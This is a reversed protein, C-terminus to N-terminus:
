TEFVTDPLSDVTVGLIPPFVVRLFKMKFPRDNERGKSIFFTSNEKKSYKEPEFFIFGTQPAETPCWKITVNKVQTIDKM